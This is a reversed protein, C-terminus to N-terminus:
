PTWVFPDLCIPDPRTIKYKLRAGSIHGTQIRAHCSPQADLVGARAVVDDITAIVPAVEKVARARRFGKHAGQGLRGRDVAPADVSVHDHAIMEVQRQFRGPGVQDFAHMPQLARQGGPEIAEPAFVAMQKLSTILGQQDLIM